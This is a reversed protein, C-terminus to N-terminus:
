RILGWTLRWKLYALVGVAALLLLANAWEKANYLKM